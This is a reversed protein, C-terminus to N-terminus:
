AAGEESSSPVNNLRASLKYKLVAVNYARAAEDEDKFGGLFLRKTGVTVRAVWKRQNYSVGLYRNKAKLSKARGPGQLVASDPLPDPTDDVPNLLPSDYLEKARLNYARAADADTLYTGLYETKHDKTIVAIWFDGQPQVGIYRSKTGERKAKNQGNHSDDTGRLNSRRNDHKVHNIHDVYVAGPVLTAHMTRLVGGVLGQIYGRSCSWSTLMLLHWEDDDVLAELVVEKEQNTVPIIAVGEANRLIPRAFHASLDANMLELRKADVAAKAAEPTEFRGVKMLQRKYTLKGLYTKEDNGRYVGKPLSRVVKKVTRYEGPNALVQDVEDRSLLGNVKAGPGCLALASRDYARAADEELLFSGIWNGCCSAGWRQDRATWFVGHYKSTGQRGICSQNNQRVTAVRLNPRRNDLGDSNVHHVVFGKETPGMLFSHLSLRKGRVTGLVYAKKGSMM